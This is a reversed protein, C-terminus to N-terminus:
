QTRERGLHFRIAVLAWPEHRKFRDDLYYATQAILTPRRLGLWRPGLDYVALLGVRQVRNARAGSVDVLQHMPGIMLKKGGAFPQELLLVSSTRLVRDGDSAILVDRAPEYFCPGVGAAKWWEIEASVAGIVRGVRMKLTPAFYVREAFGTYSLDNTDKRTKEDFLADYGSFDQLSNFLGFYLTPEIGARLDLISLPSLEVWAGVRNYAPSFTDTLGLALHADALLPNKSESLRWTWSADLTNEIGIVNVMAGLTNRIERRPPEAAAPTATLTSALAVVALALSATKM